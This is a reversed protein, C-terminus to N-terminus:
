DEYRGNLFVRGHKIVKCSDRKTMDMDFGQAEYRRQIFTNNFEVSEQEQDDTLVRLLYGITLYSDLLMKSLQRLDAGKKDMEIVAKTHLDIYYKIQRITNYMVNKKYGFVWGCNSLHESLEELLEIDLSPLRQKNTLKTGNYRSNSWHCYLFSVYHSLMIKNKTQIELYYDCKRVFLFKHYLKILVEGIIKMFLTKIPKLIAKLLAEM